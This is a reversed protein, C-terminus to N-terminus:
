LVSNHKVVAAQGLVRSQRSKKRRKGASAAVTVSDSPNTWTPSCGEKRPHGCEGPCAQLVRPGHVQLLLMHYAIQNGPPSQRHTQQVRGVQTQQSTRM